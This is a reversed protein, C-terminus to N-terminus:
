VSSRKIDLRIPTLELEQQFRSLMTQLRAQSLINEPDNINVNIGHEHSPKLSNISTSTHISQHSLLSSSFPPPGDQGSADKISLKAGLASTTTTAAMAISPGKTSLNSHYETTSPKTMSLTRRVIISDFRQMPVLHAIKGPMRRVTFKKREKKKQKFCSFCHCPESESPTL